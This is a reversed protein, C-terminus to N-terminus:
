KLPSSLYADLATSTNSYQNRFSFVLIFGLRWNEWLTGPRSLPEEPPIISVAHTQHPYDIVTFGRLYTGRRFYTGRWKKRFHATPQLAGFTCVGLYLYGQIRSTHAYDSFCACCAHKRHFAGSQVSKKRAPNKVGGQWVGRFYTRGGFILVQM